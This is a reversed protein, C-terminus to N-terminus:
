WLAICLGWIAKTEYCNTRTSGAWSDLGVTGGAKISEVLSELWAATGDADETSSGKSLAACNLFSLPKGVVVSIVIFALLLAVDIGTM